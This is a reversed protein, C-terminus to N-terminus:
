NKIYKLEKGCKPCFKYDKHYVRKYGCDCELMDPKRRDTKLKERAIDIEGLLKPNDLYTDIVQTEWNYKRKTIEIGNVHGHFHIFTDCEDSNMDITEEILKMLNEKVLRDM